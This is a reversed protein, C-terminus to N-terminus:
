ELGIALYLYITSKLINYCEGQRKPLDNEQTIGTVSIFNRLMEVLRKHLAEIIYIIKERYM